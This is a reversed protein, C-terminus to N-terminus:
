NSSENELASKLAPITLPRRKRKQKTVHVFSVRKSITAISCSSSRISSFEKKLDLIIIKSAGIKEAKSRVADWDEEQGM